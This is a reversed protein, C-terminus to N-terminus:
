SQDLRVKFVTYLEPSWIIFFITFDKFPDLPLSCLQFCAPLCTRHPSASSTTNGLRSLLVGLPLRVAGQLERLLPLLPLHLARDRTV